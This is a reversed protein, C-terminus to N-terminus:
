RQRKPLWSIRDRFLRTFRRRGNPAMSAQTLVGAFAATYAAAVKEPTSAALVRRAHAYIRDSAAQGDDWAKAIVVAAEDPDGDLRVYYPYDRGLLAHHEAIDSVVAPLGAHVAEMLVNPMGEYRSFSLIVRARSMLLAIDKRFGLLDVRDDIGRESAELLIRDAQSGKGAVTLRADPHTDSFSAFAATMTGVNKEPELRGVFLCEVSESRDVTSSHESLDKIVMNPITQVPARPALSHWLREGAESNAIVMSASRRGLQKRLNFALSDPYVSGRETIIWPVGRVLRTAVYTWIDAPHLWSIVLDPQVRRLTRVVFLLANPSAFNSVETRHLTLGAVELSSEHEGRGLLILHLDITPDQQLVNLLAICQRQAGGDGLSPIFFCVRM